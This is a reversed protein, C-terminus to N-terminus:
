ADEGRARGKRRARFWGELQARAEQERVGGVVELHHHASADKALNLCGGLAGRKRDPAAYLVLGMRAQILAGACMPCPELTVLLSCDNFRWDGRSAAAQRLAVLEAHGLPDRGHHRRNSGWGLARGAADLVVAAVPVEGQRGVAEARRLLRDMWLEAQAATLQGAAGRPASCDNNIESPHPRPALAM